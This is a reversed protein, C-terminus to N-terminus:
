GESQADHAVLASCQREAYLARLMWYQQAPAVSPAVEEEAYARLDALVRGLEQWEGERWAHLAHRVRTAFWVQLPTLQSVLHLRRQPSEIKKKTM